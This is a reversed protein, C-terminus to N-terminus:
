INDNDNVTSAMIPDCVFCEIEASVYYHQGGTTLIARTNLKRTVISNLSSVTLGSYLDSWKVGFSTLNKISTKDLHNHTFTWSKDNKILPGYKSNIISKKNTIRKERNMNHINNISEPLTYLDDKYEIHLTSGNPIRSSTGDIDHLEWYPHPQMLQTRQIDEDDGTVSRIHIGCLPIYHFNGDRESYEGNTLVFGFRRNEGTEDLLISYVGPRAGDSTGISDLVRVIKESNGFKGLYM